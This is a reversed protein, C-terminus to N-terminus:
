RGAERSPAVVDVFVDELSRREPTVGYVSVRHRALLDVAAAIAAEGAVRAMVVTRQGEVVQEVQVLKGLEPLLDVPLSSLRFEVRLDRSLLDDVRGTAAVRGHDIIAVRDSSLEVEGLLHSNLFVTVGEGRLRALIARVDRRGLPDLASTPEDLFVLRPSNILAQALGIRQQMGKSYTGIKKHAYATLDVLALVDPIRKRREASSMGYLRGHLDLFESGTLWEHFRFLEPLYGIQRRAVRDGLKRGLLRAQGSTPYVLGMLMKISTTKGAGNPGLFGFVEGYDVSLTLNDVAVQDRFVKRLGRLEIAPENSPVDITAEPLLSVSESM